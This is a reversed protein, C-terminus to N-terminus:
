QRFPIADTVDCNFSTFGGEHECVNKGNVWFWSKYNAAGIHLFIHTHAKPEYTFDRQYWLPGEYHLLQERQSNWDGPVKLTPSKSFDYEVVHGGPEPKQNRAYGPFGGFYPDVITAWDGDLSKAPRIDAGTLVIPAPAQSTPSQAQSPLSAAITVMAIIAIVASRLLVERTLLHARLRHQGSANWVRMSNCNLRLGLFLFPISM